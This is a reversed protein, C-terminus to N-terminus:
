YSFLFMLNLFLFLIQNVREMKALRELFFYYFYYNLFLEFTRFIKLVEKTIFNYILLVDNIKM